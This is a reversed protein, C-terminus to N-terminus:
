PLAIILLVHARHLLAVARRYAEVLFLNPPLGM